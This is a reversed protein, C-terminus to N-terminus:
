LFFNEIYKGINNKQAITSVLSSLAIDLIGLGFPSFITLDNVNRKPPIKNQIVESLTGRIFTTNGSLQKALHVSTSASCVHTIDDVINDNALIIEPDLDRLSIHLITSGPSFLTKKNIYPSVETTAFSILKTNKNLESIDKAIKLKIDPFKKQCAKSFSDIRMIDLDLLMIAKLTPYASKLFLLVEFNIRGCGVIGVSTINQDVILNQTALVASAATRKASIIAGELIVQPRGTELSNLIVIASAREIGKTINDPFSAIWKIGVSPNQGDLFAPLAIIRNKDNRSFRIFTSQPLFSNGKSHLLYAEKIVEIISSEKNALIVNVDHGSIVRISNPKM